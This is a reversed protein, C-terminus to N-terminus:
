FMKDMLMIFGFVLAYIAGLGVAFLTVLILLGKMGVPERYSNLMEEKTPRKLDEVIM